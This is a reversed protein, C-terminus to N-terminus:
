RLTCNSREMNRREKGRREEGKREKGRREEGRRISDFCKRNDPLSADKTVVKV